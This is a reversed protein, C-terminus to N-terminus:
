VAKRCNFLVLINPYAPQGTTGSLEKCLLTLNYADGLPTSGRNGPHFGPTRVVLRLLCVNKSCFIALSKTKTLINKVILRSPNSGEVWLKFPQQEVVQALPGAIGCPPM